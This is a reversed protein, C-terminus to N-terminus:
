IHWVTVDLRIYEPNMLEEDIVRVGAIYERGTVCFADGRNSYLFSTYQTDAMCAAYSVPSSPDLPALQVGNTNVQGTTYYFDSDTDPQPRSPRDALVLGYLVAVDVTYHALMKGPQAQVTVSSQPAQPTANSLQAHQTGTGATPAAGSTNTSTSTSTVAQSPSSKGAFFGVAALATILAAVASIWLPGLKLFKHHGHDGDGSSHTM